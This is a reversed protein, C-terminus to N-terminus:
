PKDEPQEADQNVDAALPRVSEPGILFGPEVGLARALRKVTAITPNPRRGSEISSSIGEDLEAQRDLERNSWGKQVRCDRLREQLTM